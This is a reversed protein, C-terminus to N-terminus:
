RFGPSLFRTLAANARLRFRLFFSRSRFKSSARYTPKHEVRRSLQGLHTLLIPRLCQLRRGSRKMPSALSIGPASAAPPQSGTGRVLRGRRQEQSVPDERTATGFPKRPLRATEHLRSSPVYREEPDDSLAGSSLKKGTRRYQYIGRSAIRQGFSPFVYPSCLFTRAQAAKNHDGFPPRRLWAYRTTM